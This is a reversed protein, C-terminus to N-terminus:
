AIGNSVEDQLIVQDEIEVVAAAAADRGAVHEERLEFLLSRRVAVRPTRGIAAKKATRLPPMLLYGEAAHAGEKGSRDDRSFRPIQKESPGDM